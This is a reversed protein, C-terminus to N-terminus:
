NTPIPPRPAAPLPNGFLRQDLLAAPFGYKKLDAYMHEYLQIYSRCFVSRENFDDKPRKREQLSGGRCVEAWRCARCKAPVTASASLYAQFRPHNIFSAITEQKLDIYPFNKRWTGTPILEENVKMHGNSQITVGIHLHDDTSGDITADVKVRSLFKLIERSRIRPDCASEEYLAILLEGYRDAMDDDFLIDSVASDPLLFSMSKLDFQEQLYRVIRRLDRKPDIVTITGVREMESADAAARCRNLFEEVLKFTPRKQKTKRHVDHYEAPGDISVGVQVGTQSFFKIWEESLITGNTQISFSLKTKSGLRVTAQKIFQELRERHAMMPEGGHFVLQLNGVDHTSLLEEFRDCITDYIDEPMYAPYQKWSEDGLNYYYCYDCDINCVEAVKLIAAFHRVQSM